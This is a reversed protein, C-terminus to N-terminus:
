ISWHTYKANKQGSTLRSAVTPDHKAVLDLLALFNGRNLKDEFERHGRLAIGQRASVMVVDVISKLYQRNEAVFTVHADNLQPAVSDQKKTALFAAYREAAFLHGSSNVHLKMRELAKNWSCYGDQVFAKEGSGSFFLRCYFCYVKDEKQSYELWARSKFLDPQFVRNNGNKPYSLLIPQVDANELSRSLEAAGPVMPTALM